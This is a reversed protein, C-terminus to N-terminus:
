LTHFLLSQHCIEASQHKVTMTIAAESKLLWYWFDPYVYPSLLM